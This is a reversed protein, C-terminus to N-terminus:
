KLELLDIIAFCAELCNESILIKDNELVFMIADFFVPTKIMIEFVPVFESTIVLCGNEVTGGVLKFYYTLLDINSINQILNHIKPNENFTDLLLAIQSYDEVPIERRYSMESNKVLEMKEKLDNFISESLFDGFEKDTTFDEELDEELDEIDEIDKELDKSTQKENKNLNEDKFIKDITKLFSMFIIYISLGKTYGYIEILYDINLFKSFNSSTIIEGPFINSENLMELFQENTKLLKIRALPNLTSGQKDNSNFFPLSLFYGLILLGYMTTFYEAHRNRTCYDCLCGCLIVRGHNFPKLLYSYLPVGILIRGTSFIFEKISGYYYPSGHSKQVECPCVIKEITKIGKAFIILSM